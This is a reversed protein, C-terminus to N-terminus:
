TQSWTKRNVITCITSPDVGYRAGLATTGFQRSNRVYMGRIDCVDKETLKASGARVGHAAVHRGKSMKDSVNDADTGLFLHDPNICAPVDCSHLVHMGDPIPGNQLEWSVRHAYRQRGNVSLVGYGRPVAGGTYIRCGSFPIPTSRAELRDAPPPAITGRPM